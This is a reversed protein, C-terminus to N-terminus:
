GSPFTLTPQADKPLADSPKLDLSVNSLNAAALAAFPPSRPSFVLTPSPRAGSESAMKGFASSLLHPIPPSIKHQSPHDGHTCANLSWWGINKGRGEVPLSHQIELQM